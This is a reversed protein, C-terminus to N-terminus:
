PKQCCLPKLTALAQARAKRPKSRGEAISANRPAQRQPPSAGPNSVLALIACVGVGPRPPLSASVATSQAEALHCAMFFPRPLGLPSPGQIPKADTETLPSTKRSARNKPADGPPAAQQRHHLMRCGPRASAAGQRLPGPRTSPTRCFPRQAPYSDDCCPIYGGSSRQFGGPWQVCRM